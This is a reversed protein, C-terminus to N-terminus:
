EEEEIVSEKGADNEAHDHQQDHDHDNEHDHQSEVLVAEKMLKDTTKQVLISNEIVKTNTSFSKKIEEVNRKYQEALKAYEKELDEETVSIGEAKTIAELVLQTKVRNYASDKYQARFDEASTNTIKLYKEMNLGNYQLRYDMEHVMNDIENEVMVEPIVIKANDTIKQILQNEMTNRANDDATKQLNQKLDAKYEELTGFESVDKAFEDDLAPLEKEKIDHIKVHFIAEKGKLDEAHYDEPFTVTIDKEEEPKMGILQEEFGPIFHGSGIDLSYKEATGGPFAKGDVSGAYDLSVRDGNQVGRDEVAIWRANDELVHELQHDVDHDSVTYEAKEVEIGKYQGLEVEPKVVVTATLILEKGSGVQVINIEPMDVPEIGTEKVAEDYADPFIENIADEYFVAEGYYREMIKRPVKGKRFGPVSISKRNKLYSKEMGKEFAQPDINIELKVKKNELIEKTVKM